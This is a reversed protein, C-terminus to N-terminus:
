KWDEPFRIVRTLPVIIHPIEGQENVDGVFQVTVSPDTNSMSRKAAQTVTAPYFMTTDPYVALVEEGKSLKKISVMLDLEAVQQQSVHYRKSDDIDAIDYMGIDPHFFIVRGLIIESQATQSTKIAVESNAEIGRTLQDFEGCGLIFCSIM